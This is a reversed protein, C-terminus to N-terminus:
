IETKQAKALRELVLTIANAAEELEAKSDPCREAAAALALPVASLNAEADQIARFLRRNIEVGQDRGHRAVRLASDLLEISAAQHKVQGELLRLRAELGAVKEELDM